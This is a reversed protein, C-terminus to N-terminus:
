RATPNASGERESPAGRGRRCRPELEGGRELPAGRGRRHCPDLGGGKNQPVTRAGRGEGTAYREVSGRELPAKRLDWNGERTRWRLGVRGGWRV